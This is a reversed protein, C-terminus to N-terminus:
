AGGPSGGPGPGGAVHIAQRSNSLKTILTDAMGLELVEDRNAPLVPKFPLVAIRKAPIATTSSGSKPLTKRLLTLSGVPLAVALLLVGAILTRKFRRSAIQKRIEQQLKEPLHPNGFKGTYLNVISVKLGHKLEFEGLDRLQRQWQRYQLLDEAARKSLLIHGADGCDMVRQAVNIGAGAVNSRSNVDAVGSVPGTNIGMRVRLQPHNQLAESIELACQVPAEASTFFVLAMGDGTPLRVLKGEAEGARCQATGRVIQNLQEQLERQDDILLKSYGVIDIFLVHAIELRLDLNPEPM